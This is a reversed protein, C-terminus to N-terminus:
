SPSVAHHVPRSCFDFCVASQNDTTRFRSEYWAQPNKKMSIRWSDWILQQAMFKALGTTRTEEEIECEPSNESVARMCKEELIRQECVTQSALKTVDCPLVQPAPPPQSTTSVVVSSLAMIFKAFKVELISLRDLICKQGSLFEELLLMPRKQTQLLEPIMMPRIGGYFDITLPPFQSDSATSYCGFPSFIVSLLQVM